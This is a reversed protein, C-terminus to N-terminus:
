VSRDKVWLITPPDLSLASSGDLRQEFGAHRRGVDNGDGPCGGLEPIRAVLPM